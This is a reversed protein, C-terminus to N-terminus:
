SFVLSQAHIVQTASLAQRVGQTVEEGSSHNEGQLHM